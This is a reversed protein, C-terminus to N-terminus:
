GRSGSKLDFCPGSPSFTLHRGEIMKVSIQLIPRNKCPSIGSVNFVVRPFQLFIQPLPQKLRRRRRRTGNAGEMPLTMLPPLIAGKNALYLPYSESDVDSESYLGFQM